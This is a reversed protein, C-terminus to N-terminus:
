RKTENGVVVVVVVAAGERGPGARGQTCCVVMLAGLDKQQGPLDFWSANIM